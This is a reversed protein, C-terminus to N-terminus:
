HLVEKAKELLQRNIEALVDSMKYLSLYLQEKGNKDKIQKEGAFCMGYEPHEVFSEYTKPNEYYEDTFVPMSIGNPYRSDLHFFVRKDLLEGYYGKYGGIFNSAWKGDSSIFFSYLWKGEPVLYDLPIVKVNEINKDWIVKFNKDHLVGPIPFEAFLYSEKININVGPYLIATNGLSYIKKTLENNTIEKTKWNFLFVGQKVNKNIKECLILETTFPYLLSYEEGDEPSEYLLKDNKVDYIINYSSQKEYGDSAYYGFCVIGNEADLVIPQAERFRWTALPMIKKTKKNVMDAIFFTHNSGIICIGAESATVFRRDIREMPFDVMPTIKMSNKDVFSIEAFRAKGDMTALAGKKWPRLM